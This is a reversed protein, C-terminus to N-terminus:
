FYFLLKVIGNANDTDLNIGKSKPSIARTEERRASNNFDYQETTREAANNFYISPGYGLEAGLSIGPAVFYEVGAFARVGFSFSGAGKNKTTLVTGTDYNELKNGYEYKFTTGSNYNVFVDAGYFGQLRTHGRRKEIGFSLGLITARQKWVDVVMSNVPAGPSIDLADFTQSNNIVGVRFGARYAMDNTKMYKVFLRQNSLAFNTNPSNNNATNNFLNGLYELYPNASLGLCFDGKQPLIQIGRKNKLVPQLQASAAILSSLFILTLIKKM